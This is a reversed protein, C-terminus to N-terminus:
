NYYNMYARCSSCRPISGASQETYELDPNIPNIFCSLPARYRNYLALSSPIYSNSFEFSSPNYQMYQAYEEFQQEKEPSYTAQQQYTPNSQPLSHAEGASIHQSSSPPTEHTEDRSHAERRKKLVRNVSSM